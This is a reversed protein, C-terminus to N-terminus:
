GSFVEGVILRIKADLETDPTAEPPNLFAAELGLVQSIQPAAEATYEEPAAEATYEEPAEQPTGEATYGEPAGMLPAESVVPTPTTPQTNLYDKVRKVYERTEKNGPDGTRLYQKAARPGGNYEAIAAGVDGYQKMAYAMYRAAATAAADSDTPKSGPDAFKNWTAPMFQYVGRAGKPSVQDSNSREGKTRIATLLGRPLKHERELAAETIDLTPDNYRTPM